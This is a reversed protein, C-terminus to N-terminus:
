WRDSEALQRLRGVFKRLYTHTHREPRCSTRGAPENTEIDADPSDAGVYDGGLEAPGTSAAPRPLNAPAENEIVGLPRTLVLHEAEEIGVRAAAADRGRSLDPPRRHTDHADTALLHVCGEDLMRYAWRQANRGFAGTLSGSTIQMWVGARVLQRISEYRHRLWGLREPHTLIPVFGEVLLSFFFAELQPPATHHPPEILVYRSGAISPIRGSRLGAILDPVMYVDAGAVLRLPIGEQGLANQLRQVASSIQPGNNHYVGPLIHPTCVVISVGDTVLAQAMRLSVGLNAAGDDIGPLIHCHLDIM